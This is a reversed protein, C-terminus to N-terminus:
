KEDHELLKIEVLVDQCALHYADSKARAYGAKVSDRHITLEAEEEQDWFRRLNAFQKHLRQLIVIAQSETMM